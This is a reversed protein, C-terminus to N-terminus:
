TVVTGIHYNNGAVFKGLIVLGKSKIGNCKDTISFLARQVVIKEDINYRRWM